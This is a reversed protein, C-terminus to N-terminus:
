DKGMLLFHQTHYTLADWYAPLFHQLIQFSRLKGTTEMGPNVKGWCIHLIEEGRSVECSLGLLFPFTPSHLASKRAWWFYSVSKQIWTQAWKNIESELALFIQLKKQSSM